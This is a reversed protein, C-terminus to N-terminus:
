ITKALGTFYIQWPRPRHLLSRQPSSSASQLCTNQRIWASKVGHRPACSKAPDDCSQIICPLHVNSVLTTRVAFYELRLRRAVEGEDDDAGDSAKSLIEQYEAARELIKTANSLESGDICVRAAKLAVKMLRICSKCTRGKAQAAASDLLLFSFARLLCLSRNRHSTEEKAKGDAPREDRRM